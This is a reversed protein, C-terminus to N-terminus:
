ALEAAHPPSRRRVALDLLLDTAGFGGSKGVVPTGAWAGRRHLALSLGPALRGICDLSRTGLADCLITLTEGGTVLAATPPWGALSALSRRMRQAAETPNDAAPDAMLVHLRSDMPPSLERGDMVHLAVTDDPADALRSIQSRTRPHATGAVVLGLPPPPLAPLAPGLAHALGGTGCWLIRLDQRRAQARLAAARRDLATQDSADVVLAFPRRRREPLSTGVWSAIGRARLANALPLGVTHWGDEARVRQQGGVTRREQAPFAPALVAGDFRGGDLWAVLEDMPHGRMVSDMKKFCLTSADAHSRSAARRVARAARPASMDRSDTCLARLGRDREFVGLDVRVPRGPAAFECATDLTGTLDDALILLKRPARKVHRGRGPAPQGAIRRTGM